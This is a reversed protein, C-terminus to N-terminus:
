EPSSIIMQNIVASLTTSVNWVKGAKCYQGQQMAEIRALAEESPYYDIRRPLRARRRRQREASTLPIANNADSTM